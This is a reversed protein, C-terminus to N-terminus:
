ETANRPGRHINFTHSLEHKASGILYQLGSKRNSSEDLLYISLM